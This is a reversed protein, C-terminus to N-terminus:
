RPRYRTLAAAPDECHVSLSVENLVGSFTFDKRKCPAAIVLTRLRDVAADDIPQLAQRPSARTMLPLRIIYDSTNGDVTLQVRSGPVWFDNSRAIARELQLSLQQALTSSSNEVLARAHAEADDAQKKAQVVAQGQSQLQHYQYGAWGAAALAVIGAVGVSGWLVQTIPWSGFMPQDPYPRLTGAVSLLQPVDYLFLKSDRAIQHATAFQSLVFELSDPNLIVQPKSLEGSPARYFLVIIADAGSLDKLQFGITASEGPTEEQAHLLDVLRSGPSARYAIESFRIQPTAYLAGLSKSDNL